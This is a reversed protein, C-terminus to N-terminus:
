VHYNYNLSMTIGRSINILLRIVSNIGPLQDGLTVIAASVDKPNFYIDKRPGARLFCYSTNISISSDFEAHQIVFSNMDVFSKDTLFGGGNVGRETINGIL